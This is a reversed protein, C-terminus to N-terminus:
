RWDGSLVFAAWYYPPLRRNPDPTQDKRFDLGRKIGERLMALQAARLAELKSQKKSWLNEYFDIMLSRAADDNVQWLTAVVSHAGAVQFARQLGLLGEGGARAGLGTECASLTVLDARGLDLQAVDLATLIGNDQGPEAPGNAGALVLGSLLGPPYGGAQSEFLVDGSRAPSVALASRLQPPAFFGHTAFHVYRYKPLDQRVESVTPQQQRLFRATARPYCGQFTDQIALAETRSGKVPAWDPLAKRRERDPASRTDATGAVAEPRAGFDIDGVVLLSADERKSADRSELLDPLLHPVPVVAIALEELLYSGPTRGPLAPFPFRDLAGDPSILVTKAGNLHQELPKWVLSRLGSAADTRLGLTLRWDEVAAAIPAAPGLDVRVIPKDACVVFATLRREMRWPGQGNAPPDRDLYELFDVIAADRPLCARIQAATRQKRERQRRFADSYRALESELREQEKLLSAKQRKWDEREEPRPVALTIAALERATEELRRLLEGAEAHKDALLERRNRLETARAFVSGKWALVEEYAPGAPLKAVSALSLYMDLRGRLAQSMALQRRESASRSVADLDQRSVETVRKLIPEASGYDGKQWTVLALSTLCDVYLPHDEDVAKKLVAVAKQLLPEAQKLDGRAQYLSALQRLLTAYDTAGIEQIPEDGQASAKVAVLEQRLLQEAEAFNGTMQYSGALSVVNQVYYYPEEGPQAEAMGHQGIEWAQRLLPQAKQYEGQLMYLSALENLSKAYALRGQGLVKKQLDLVETAARIALDYQGTDRYFRVLDKLAEAYEQYEESGAHLPERGITARFIDAAGRLLPEAKVYDGTAHYLKGLAHLDAAYHPHHEGLEKRDIRAAARLFTEARGYDAQALRIEGIGGLLGACLWHSEGLVKERLDLAQQLLSILEELNEPVRSAEAQDLLKRAEHLRRRDDPGLTAIRDVLALELRDDTVRWDQGGHLRSQVAIAEQWTKRATAFDDHELQLRALYELSAAVEKHTDGFGGRSATVMAKARAVAEALKDERRFDDAEARLRDVEAASDSASEEPSAQSAQPGDSQAGLPRASLALVVALLLLAGQDFSRLPRM